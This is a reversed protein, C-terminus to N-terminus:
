GFFLAASDLLRNDLRSIANSVAQETKGESTGTQTPTLDSHICLAVMILFYLVDMRDEQSVEM